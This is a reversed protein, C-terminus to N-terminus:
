PSPSKATSFHSMIGLCISRYHEAPLAEGLLVDRYVHGRRSLKREKCFNLSAIRHLGGKNTMHLLLGYRNMGIDAMKEGTKEWDVVAFFILATM